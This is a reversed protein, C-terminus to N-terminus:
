ARGRGGKKEVQDVEWFNAREKGNLGEGPSPVGEAALRGQKQSLEEM